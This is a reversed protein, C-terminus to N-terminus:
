RPAEPISLRARESDVKESQTNLFEDLPIGNHLVVVKRPPIKRKSTSAQRVTESVAIAKKPIDKLIRDAVSQHFPYNRDDDHALLVVLIGLLAGAMRGFNASGYGHVHILEVKKARVMRLLDLLTRSDLKGRNLHTIGIGRQEFLETLDDRPRLMCLDVAFRDRSIHSITNLYYRGAGHMFGTYGLHDVIWLVRITRM